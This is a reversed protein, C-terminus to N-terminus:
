IVFTKMRFFLLAHIPTEFLSKSIVTLEFYLLAMLSRVKYVFFLNDLTDIGFTLNRGPLHIPLSGSTQEAVNSSRTQVTVVLSDLAPLLLGDASSRM